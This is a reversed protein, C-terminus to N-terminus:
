SYRVDKGPEMEYSLALQEGVHPHLVDDVFKQYVPDSHGLAMKDMSEYDVGFFFGWDNDAEIRKGCRIARVEAIKLLRIRTERLVWEVQEDEIGPHFRCLVVHHVM